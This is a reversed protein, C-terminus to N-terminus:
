PADHLRGSSGVAAPGEAARGQRGPLYRLRHLSVGPLGAEACLEAFWHGMGSTTLRRQHDIDRTFVWEGFAADRDVRERWTAESAGLLQV